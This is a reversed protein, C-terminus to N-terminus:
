TIIWLDRSATQAQIQSYLTYHPAMNLKEWPLTRLTKKQEVLPGLNIQVEAMVSLVMLVSGFVLKCWCEKINAETEKRQSWAM